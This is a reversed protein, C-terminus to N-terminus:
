GALKAQYGAQVVARLLADPVVSDDDFDIEAEGAALNVVASYVGPTHRLAGEVKTVCHGCTMGGVRM